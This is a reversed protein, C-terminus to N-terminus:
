KKRNKELNFYFFNYKLIKYLGIKFKLYTTPSNKYVNELYEIKHITKEYNSKERDFGFSIEINFNIDDDDDDSNNKLQKPLMEGDKMNDFIEIERNEVHEVNKIMYLGKKNKNNNKLDNIHFSIKITM